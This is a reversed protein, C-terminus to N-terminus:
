EFRKELRINKIKGEIIRERERKLEEIEAEYFNIITRWLIADLIMGRESYTKLANKAAKRYNNPGITEDKVNDPM